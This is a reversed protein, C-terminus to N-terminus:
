KYTSAYYSAIGILGIILAILMYTFDTDKMSGFLGIYFIALLANNIYYLFDLSLLGLLWNEHFLEIFGLSDEPPPFMLFVVIQLPIILVITLAALGAIKFLKNWNYEKDM